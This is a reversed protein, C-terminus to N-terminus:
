NSPAQNLDPKYAEDPTYSDRQKELARKANESAYQRSRRSKYTISCNEMLFGMKKNIVKNKEMMAQKGSAMAKDKKAKEKINADEALKLVIQVFEESDQDLAETLERVQQDSCTAKQNDSLLKTQYKTNQQALAPTALMLLVLFVYNKIM